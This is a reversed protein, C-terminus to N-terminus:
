PVRLAAATRDAGDDEVHDRFVTIRARGNLVSWDALQLAVGQFDDLVASEVPETDSSMTQRDGPRAIRWSRAAPHNWM